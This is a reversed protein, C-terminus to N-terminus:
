SKITSSLGSLLLTAIQNETNGKAKYANIAM